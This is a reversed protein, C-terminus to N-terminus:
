LAFTETKLARIAKAIMEAAIDEGREEARIEDLAEPSLKWPQKARKAAASGKHADAIQAARELGNAFSQDMRDILENGADRETLRWLPGCGNPCDQPDNNASMGGSPVHLNTSVLRFSCKACRRVGPVYVLTELRAIERELEAVSAM